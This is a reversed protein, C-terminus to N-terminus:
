AAGAEGDDGDDVDGGQAGGAADAMQVVFFDGGRQHITDHPAHPNMKTLKEM